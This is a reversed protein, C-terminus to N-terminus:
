VELVAPNDDDDDDDDDPHIGDVSGHHRHMEDTGDGGDHPNNIASGGGDHPPHYMGTLVDHDAGDDDVMAAAEGSSSGVEQQQQRGAARRTRTKRMKRKFDERETPSMTRGADSRRKRDVEGRRECVASALVQHFGKERGWAHALDRFNARPTGGSLLLIEVLALQREWPELQASLSPVAFLGRARREANRHWGPPNKRAGERLFAVLPMVMGMSTGGGGGGDSADSGGGGDGGDDAEAVVTRKTGSVVVVGRGLADGAAVAAAAAVAPSVATTAASAPRYAISAPLITQYV